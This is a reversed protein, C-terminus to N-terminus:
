RRRRRAALLGGAALLAASAPTPILQGTVGTAQNAFSSNFFNAGANQILVVTTQAGILPGGFNTSWSNNYGTFTPGSFSPYVMSANFALGLPTVTWFGNLGATFTTGNIDTITVSGTGTAFVGPTVVTVAVNVVIDAPNADTVFGAPFTANIFAPDLRNFDGITRLTPTDVARAVFNGTIPSTQTFSGQLSDYSYSAVVQASASSAAVGALAAIMLSAKLM